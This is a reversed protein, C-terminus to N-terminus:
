GFLRQMFSPRLHKATLQALKDFSARTTTLASYITRYSELGPMPRNQFDRVTCSTGSQDSVVVVTGLVVPTDKDLVGLAISMVGARSEIFKAFGTLGALKGLNNAFAQVHQVEADTLIRSKLLGNGQAENDLDTSRLEKARKQVLAELFQRLFADAMALAELLTAFTHNETILQKDAAALVGFEIQGEVPSWSQILVVDQGKGLAADEIGISAGALGRAKGTTFYISIGTNAHTREFTQRIQSLDKETFEYGDPTNTLTM